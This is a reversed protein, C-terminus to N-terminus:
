KVSEGNIMSFEVMYPNDWEMNTVHDLNIIKGPSNNKELYM